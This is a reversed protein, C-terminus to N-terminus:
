AGKQGQWHPTLLPQHAQTITGVPVRVEEKLQDETKGAFSRLLGAKAQTGKYSMYIGTARAWFEATRLFPEFANGNSSGPGAGAQPHEM